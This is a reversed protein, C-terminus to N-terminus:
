VPPTSPPSGKSEPQGPARDTKRPPSKRTGPRKKFTVGHRRYFGWLTSVAVQVGREGALRTRLEELTLKGNDAILGLLYEAHVDLKSGVPHGQKHARREGKERWRRVWRVATATGIGFHAAASRASQGAAVASLVRERLDLSYARSM